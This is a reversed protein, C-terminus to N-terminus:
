MNQTLTQYTQQPTYQSLQSIYQSLPIHTSLYQSTIHARGVASFREIVYKPHTNSLNTSTFKSFNPDINLYQSIYQSIPVHHTHVRRCQIGRNCTKPSHKILIHPYINPYNLYINLYQSLPIYISINPRSAHVQHTYV